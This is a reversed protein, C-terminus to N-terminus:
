AEPTSKAKAVTVFAPRLIREHLAYGKQMVSLVTNPAEDSELASIAQHRNPDFKEGQPSIDLINFKEFVSALQRLTLGVGDKFANVESSEIAAAAELSDKVAILESAFSELAFKRAQQLDQAARKRINDSDAKARLFHDQLEAIKSELEAIKSEPSTNEATQESGVVTDATAPSPPIPMDQM